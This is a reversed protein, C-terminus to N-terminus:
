ETDMEEFVSLCDKDSFVADCCGSELIQGSGERVCMCAVTDTVRRAQELDHTVIVVPREEKLKLILTEIAERSREDLASTPEDMLIIDPELALTRALCLRQQQGVSLQDGSANLRDKVEDWLHAKRLANELFETQQAKSIKLVRKVGFLVNDKISGPFIVPQQYVMGIQSRVRNVDIKPAHLDKGRFFIQGTHTFGPILENTRNLARLLTSKGAGSPGLIGLVNKEKVALSVDKLVCRRGFSVSLKITNLVADVGESGSGNQPEDTRPALTSHEDM